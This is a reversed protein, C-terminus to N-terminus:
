LEHERGWGQAHGNEHCAIKAYFEIDGVACPNPMTIISVGDKTRTHCAIIINGKEAKGCREEIGERDTFVVVSVSSGRYREPPMDANVLGTSVAVPRTRSVSLAYSPLCVAVAACTLAVLKM